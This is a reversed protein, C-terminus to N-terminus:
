SQLAVFEFNLPDLGRSKLQKVCEVVNRGAAEIRKLPLTEPTYLELAIWLGAFNRREVLSLRDPSRGIM